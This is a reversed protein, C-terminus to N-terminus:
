YSIMGLMDFPVMNPSMSQGSFADRLNTLM